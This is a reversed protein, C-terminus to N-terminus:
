QKNETGSWKEPKQQQKRRKRVPKQERPVEDQPVVCRERSLALRHPLAPTRTWSKLDNRSSLSLQLWVWLVQGWIVTCLFSFQM